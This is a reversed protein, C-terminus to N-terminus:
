GAVHHRFKGIIVIVGLNEVCAIHEIAPAAVYGVPLGPEVAHLPQDFENVRMGYRVDHTAMDLDARIAFVIGVSEGM